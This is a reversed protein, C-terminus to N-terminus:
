RAMVYLIEARGGNRVGCGTTCCGNQRNMCTWGERDLVANGGEFIVQFITNKKNYIIHCKYPNLFSL